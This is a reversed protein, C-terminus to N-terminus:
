SDQKNNHSSLRRLLGDVGVKRIEARFSSKYNNVLSVGDVVMDFVKWKRKKDRRVRFQVPTKSGSGSAFETRVVVTRRSPDYVTPEIAVRGARFETMASAYTHVLMRTFRGQFQKRQEETLKSWNKGIIWQSMLHMDLHPLVIETILERAVLKAQEPRERLQEEKQHLRELVQNTLEQILEDPQEEVAQVAGIAFWFMLLWAILKGSIILRRM